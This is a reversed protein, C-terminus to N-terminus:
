DGDSEGEQEVTPVPTDGDARKRGERWGYLGCQVCRTNRWGNRLRREAVEAADVYGSPLPWDHLTNECADRPGPRYDGGCLYVAGARSSM